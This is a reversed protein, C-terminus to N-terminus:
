VSALAQLPAIVLWRPWPECDDYQLPNFRLSLGGQRTIPPDRRIMGKIELRCLSQLTQGFTLHWCYHLLAVHVAEAWMGHSWMGHCICQLCSSDILVDLNGNPKSLVTYTAADIDEQPLSLNRNYTRLCFKHREACANATVGELMAAHLITNYFPGWFGSSM